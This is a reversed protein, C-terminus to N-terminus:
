FGGGTRFDGGGSIGGGSSFGDGSDSRASSRSSSSSSSSSSSDFSSSSSSAWNFLGGSSASSSSSGSRTTSFFSASVATATARRYTPAQYAQREADAAAQYSRRTAQLNDLRKKLVAMERTHEAVLGDIEGLRQRTGQIRELVADDEGSATAAVRRHLENMGTASLTRALATLLASGEADTWSRFGDIQAQKADVAQRHLQENLLAQAVAGQATQLQQRLPEGGAQALAADRAQQVPRRATESADRAQGAHAQLYPPLEVLTAYERRAREFGCLEALWGDVTRVLPWSRYATSGFGRRHLYMFVPDAQYAGAKADHEAQASAAMREVTEARAQALQLEDQLARYAPDAELAADVQDQLAQLQGGVADRAAVAAQSRQQLSQEIDLLAQLEDALVAAKRDRRQLDASSQQLLDRAMAPPSDIAAQAHLRALANFDERVQGHLAEQEKILERCADGREALSAQVQRIDAAVEAIADNLDRM